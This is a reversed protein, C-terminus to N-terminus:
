LLESTYSTTSRTHSSRLFHGLAHPLILSWLMPMMVGYASWTNRMRDSSRLRRMPPMLTSRTAFTCPLCNRAIKRDVTRVLRVHLAFALSPAPVLLSSTSRAWLRTATTPSGTASQEIPRQRFTHSRKMSIQDSSRECSSPTSSFFVYTSFGSAGSNTGRASCPSAYRRSWAAFMAGGGGLWLTGFRHPAVPAPPAKGMTDDGPPRLVGGPQRGRYPGLQRRYRRCCGGGGCGDGGALSDGMREPQPQRITGPRRGQYRWWHAAWRNRTSLCWWREPWQGVKLLLLLGVFTRGTHHCRRGGEHLRLGLLLLLLGPSASEAGPKVMLRRM